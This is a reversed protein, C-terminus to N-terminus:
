KQIELDKVENYGDPVSFSFSFEKPKEGAASYMYSEASNHPETNPPLGPHQPSIVPIFVNIM